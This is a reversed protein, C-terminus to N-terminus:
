EQHETDAVNEMMQIPDIVQTVTPLRADRVIGELVRQRAALSREYLDIRRNLTERLDHLDATSAAVCDLAVSTSRGISALRRDSPLDAPRLLVAVYDPPPQNILNEWTSRNLNRTIHNAWMRWVAAEAQFTSSWREQVRSVVDQLPEEATAGARDTSIPRVCAATFAQHDDAKKIATGYEYILLLVTEGRCDVLWRNWQQETKSSGVM